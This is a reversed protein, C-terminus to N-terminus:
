EQENDDEFIDEFDEDDDMYDEDSVQNKHM